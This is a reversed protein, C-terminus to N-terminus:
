SACPSPVCSSESRQQAMRHAVFSAACHCTCARDWACCGLYTRVQLENAVDGLSQYRCLDAVRRARLAPSSGVLVGAGHFYEAFQTLEAM